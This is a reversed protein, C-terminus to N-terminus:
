QWIDPSRLLRILDVILAILGATVALAILAITAILPATDYGDEQYLYRLSFPLSVIWGLTQLSTMVLALKAAARVKRRIHIASVACVAGSLAILISVLYPVVPIRRDNLLCGATIAAVFLLGFLFVAIGMIQLGMALTRRKKEARQYDLIFPQPPPNPSPDSM